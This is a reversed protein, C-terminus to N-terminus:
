AAAFNVKADYLLTGGANTVYSILLDENLTVIAGAISFTKQGATVDICIDNNTLAGGADAKAQAVARRLGGYVYLYTEYSEGGIGPTRYPTCADAATVRAMRLPKPSIVQMTNIFADVQPASMESPLIYVAELPGGDKLHAYLARVNQQWPLRPAPDDGLEAAHAQFDKTSAALRELGYRRACAAFTAAGEPSVPSLGMIVVRKQNGGLQLARGRSSVIHNACRLIWYSGIIFLPMGLAAVLPIPIYIKILDYAATGIMASGVALFVAPLIIQFPLPM